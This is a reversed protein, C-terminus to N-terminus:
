LLKPKSNALSDQLWELYWSSFQAKSADRLFLPSLGSNEARGDRWLYGAEEGTVVLLNAVRM